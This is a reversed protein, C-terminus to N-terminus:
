KAKISDVLIIQYYKRDLPLTQPEFGNKKIYISDKPNNVKFSFDGNEDTTTANIIRGDANREVVNLNAIPKESKDAVNGAVIDGKKIKVQEANNNGAIATTSFSIFLIFMSVSCVISQLGKSSKINM